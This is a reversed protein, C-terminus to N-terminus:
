QASWTWIVQSGNYSPKIIGQTNNVTNTCFIGSQLDAPMNTMFKAV